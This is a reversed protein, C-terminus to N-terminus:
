HQERGRGIFTKHVEDASMHVSVCGELSAGSFDLLVIMMVSLVALNFKAICIRPYNRLNSALTMEHLIKRGPAAKSM